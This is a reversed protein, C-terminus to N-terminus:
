ETNLENLGSTWTCRLPDENRQQESECISFVSLFLTPFQGFITGFLFQLFQLGAGIKLIYFPGQSKFEDHSSM